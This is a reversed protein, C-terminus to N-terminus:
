AETSVRVNVRARMTNTDAIETVTAATEVCTGELQTIGDSMVTGAIPATPTLGAEAQATTAAEVAFQRSREAAAGCQRLEIQAKIQAARADAAGAQASHFSSQVGYDRMSLLSQGMEVHEGERVYVANV